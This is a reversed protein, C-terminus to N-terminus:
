LESDQNDKPFDLYQLNTNKRKVFYTIIRYILYAIICLNLVGLTNFAIYAIKEDIEMSALSFYEGENEDYFDDYKMMYIALFVYLFADLFLLLISILINKLTLIKLLQKM